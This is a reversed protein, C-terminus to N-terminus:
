GAARPFTARFTTGDEATSALAVEGGHAKAIESVIFLGLGVSRSASGDSDGRVMPQFVTPQLHAPIPTGRNHVELRFRNGGITSRVTVPQQPDGYAMANAVLNGVLQALRDPDAACAGEGSAEHLLERGPYAQQLDDVVEAVSAHLAIPQPHVTIGKGLRAATFDLLDAILRHSRDTARAIRDLVEVQRPALEGRKLLLVGMHITQLPNRLDHSVIAMMQESVLARDKAEEHLRTSEAVAEELRRRALVLEREFRDRDRAVFAAVDDVVQGAEVHRRANLMVPVTAGTRQVFDLKVEAISGQMQLLPMWHTQHFIRGGMTLLDQLRLRSLEDASRGVWECFTRNARLIAGNEDTRLLGCPVADLALQVPDNTSAPPETTV